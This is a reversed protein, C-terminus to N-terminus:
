FNLVYKFGEKLSAAVNYWFNFTHHCGSIYQVHVLMDGNLVTM